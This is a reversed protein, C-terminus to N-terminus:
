GRTGGLFPGLPRHDPDPAPSNCKPCHPVYGTQIRLRILLNEADWCRTCFPGDDDLWYSNKRVALKGRIAARDKLQRIEDRLGHNEEVLDIIQSQLDVIRKSLDLNGLQQILGAIDRATETIKV